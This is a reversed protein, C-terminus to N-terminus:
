SQRDMERAYAIRTQLRQKVEKPIKRGQKSKKKFADIVYVGKRLKIVYTDGGFDDCLEYVGSGYGGLPKAMAPTEGNQVQRLGFGFSRKLANPFGSLEEKSDGLWVLPNLKYPLNAM